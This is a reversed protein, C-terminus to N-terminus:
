SKGGAKNERAIGEFATRERNRHRSSCRLKTVLEIQKDTFPRVEQRFLGFAGILEDDKLMPVALFTRIGGLEVAEVYAPRREEVYQKEAALDPTHVLSKTAVM